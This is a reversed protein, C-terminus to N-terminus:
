KSVARIEVKTEWEAGHTDATHTVKIIKFLGNLERSKVVARSGARLEPYLLSTVTIHPPKGNENPTGFDPTGIMGTAESIEYQDSATETERLIQLKGNQFSWGLGIPDLIRSLEERAEGFAVGGSSLQKVLLAANEPSDLNKPFPQGFSTCLDKVVTKYTTGRSYSKAIRAGAYARGGDALQLTTVWDSDELTSMGWNLDGEYLVRLVGDYGAEVVVHLPKKTLAARSHENLNTIKVTCSNPHKTLDREIEFQMRLDTIVLGTTTETADKSGTQSVRTSEFKDDFLPTSMRYVTLKALRKFNRLKGAIIDSQVTM